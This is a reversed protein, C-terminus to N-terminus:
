EENEIILNSKITGTQINDSEFVASEIDDAKITEEKRPRGKKTPMLDAIDEVANSIRGELGVKDPYPLTSIHKDLIAKIKEKM